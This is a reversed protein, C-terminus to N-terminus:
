APREWSFHVSTGTDGGEITLRGGAAEARDRMTQIGFHGDRRAASVDSGKFGCGDDRVTLDITDRTTTALVALKEGHSHRLANACAEQAIRFAATEADRDPRGDDLADADVDVVWGTERQRLSDGLDELAAALGLDELVPPHLTTALERLQAAVLRLEEAEGGGSPDTDLRRIVASLSQLPVDHIERALRGREDEIARMEAERRLRGTLLREFVRAAGRSVVPFTILAVAFVIAAAWPALNAFVVAAILLGGVIPLYLIDFLGPGGPTAISELLRRRNITLAGTWGVFVGLLPTRGAEVADFAATFAVTSLLWAGIYLGALGVAVLGARRHSAIVVAFAALMPAVISALGLDRLSGTLLLPLTAFVLAAPILALGIDEGRILLLMSLIILALGVIAWPLSARLAALQGDAMSGRTVDSDVILQWGGPQSSDRFDVVADGPRIGDRWVPSGPQVQQVVQNESDLYVGPDPVVAIAAVVSFLALLLAAGATILGDRKRLM